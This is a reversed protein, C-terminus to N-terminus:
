YGLNWDLNSLIEFEMNFHSNKDLTPLIEKLDKFFDCYHLEDYGDFKLSIHICLIMYLYKNEKRLVWSYSIKHRIRIWYLISRVTYIDDIYRDSCWTRIFDREENTIPSLNNM